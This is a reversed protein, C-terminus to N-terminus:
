PRGFAGPGPGFGQGPFVPSAHGPWGGYRSGHGFGSHGYYRSRAQMGDAQAWAQSGASSPPSTTAATAPRRATPTSSALPYTTPQATPTATPVTKHTGASLSNPAADAQSGPSLTAAYVGAAAVVSLAVLAITAAILGTRFSIEELRANVAARLRSQVRARGYGGANVSM